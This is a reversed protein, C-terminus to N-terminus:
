FVHEQLQVHPAAQIRYKPVPGCGLELLHWKGQMGYLNIGEPSHTKMSHLSFPAGWGIQCGQKLLCNLFPTLLGPESGLEAM